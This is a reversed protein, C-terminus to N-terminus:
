FSQQSLQVHQEYIQAPFMTHYIQDLETYLKDDGPDDDFPFYYVTFPVQFLTAYINTNRLGNREYFGIRRRRIEKEGTDETMEPRELEALLGHYQERCAEKLLQLCQSGYGHSRFPACVALYDLLLYSGQPQQVLLAYAVLQNEDYFGYCRYVGKKQLAQLAELPKLEDAPFDQIMHKHFVEALEASSLLQTSLM